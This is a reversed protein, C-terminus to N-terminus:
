GDKYGFSGWIPSHDSLGKERAEHLYECRVPRLVESTLIHDFRRGRQRGYGRWYWSYEERGYGHVKRFADHLDYERLGVLVSKEGEHWRDDGKELRIEGNKYVKQGWTIVKGDEFELQPSNFDGCLIRPIISVNSLRKYIGEFTDIKIWGNTSGCPIHTNHVEITGCPADVLASIVRESWPIPFLATDQSELPFRSALLVGHRRHGTLVSPDLSLEFSDAAFCIGAEFFAKRLPTVNGALVEQLAVVDPNWALIFEIQEQLKRKRGAVNWSLLSFGKLNANRSM